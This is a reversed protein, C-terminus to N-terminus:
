AVASALFYGAKSATITPIAQISAEVVTQKPSEERWNRTSIDKTQFTYAAAPEDISPAAPVYLALASKGWIFERSVVQGERAANYSAKGVVIREFGLWEAILEPTMVGTRTHKYRDLGDPHISLKDYVQQGIVLVNPDRGIDKLVTSKATLMDNAPDSNVFDDWTYSVSGSTGWVGTVFLTAAAKRERRLYCKEMCFNIGREYPNIPDDATDRIEDPIAHAFAYEECEFATNSVTYGGRPADSGPMRNPSAADQVWEGQDFSFYKGQRAPVTVVPAFATAVYGANKYAIAAQSIAKAIYVSSLQPQAM